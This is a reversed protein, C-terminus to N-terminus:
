GHFGGEFTVVRHREPMHSAHHYRRIMKLGCEVAEAGSSCFFVTDAFTAEVLRAALKEQLPIRYLNSCHWLQGAQDKLARVLHPHCHGLANVAIGTAFDLYRKGAEDFLYCGEGHVMVLESRRYVPMVSPIM